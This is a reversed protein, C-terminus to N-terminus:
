GNRAFFDYGFRIVEAQFCEVLDRSETSETSQNNKNIMIKNGKCSILVLVGVEEERKKRMYGRWQNM